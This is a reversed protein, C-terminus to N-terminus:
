GIWSFGACRRSNSNQSCLLPPCHATCVEILNGPGTSAKRPHMDLYQLIERLDLLEDRFMQLFETFDIQGNRNQVCSVLGM